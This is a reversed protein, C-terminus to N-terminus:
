LKRLIVGDHELGGWMTIAVWGLVRYVLFEAIKSLTAFVLLGVGGGFIFIMEDEIQNKRAIGIAAGAALMTQTLSLPSSPMAGLPIKWGAAEGPM